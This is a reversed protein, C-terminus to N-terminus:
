SAGEVVARAQEDLALPLSADLQWALSGHVRAVRAAVAAAATRLADADLREVQGLGVSASTRGGEKLLTVLGLEAEAAAGAVGVALVDAAAPERTTAVRM